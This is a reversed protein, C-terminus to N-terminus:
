LHGSIDYLRKDFLPAGKHFFNALQQRVYHLLEALGATAMSFRPYVMLAAAIRVESVPKPVRLVVIFTPDDELLAAADRLDWFVKETGPATHNLLTKKWTYKFPGAVLGLGSVLKAEIGGSGGMEASVGPAVAPLEAKAVSATAEFQLNENLRFDLHASAEFSPAFKRDPLITHVKPRLHGASVGPNFEVSFQLQVFPMNEAPKLTMPFRVWYFRSEKSWEQFRLPVPLNHEAFHKERLELVDPYVSLEAVARSMQELLAAAADPTPRGSAPARGSGRLVYLAQLERQAEALLARPDNGEFDFDFHLADNM